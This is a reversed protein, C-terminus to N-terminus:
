IGGRVPENGIKQQRPRYTPPKTIIKKFTRVSNVNRNKLSARCLSGDPSPSGDYWWTPPRGTLLNELFYNTGAADRIEDYKVWFQGPKEQAMVTGACIENIPHGWNTRIRRGVIHSLRIDSDSGLQFQKRINNLLENVKPAPKAPLRLQMENKFKAAVNEDTLGQWPLLDDTHVVLDTGELGMFRIVYNKTRSKERGVIKFPGMRTSDLKTDKVPKRISVWEGEMYDKLNKKRADQEIMKKQHIAINERGQKDQQEIKREKDESNSPSYEVDSNDTESEDISEVKEEHKDKKESDDNDMINSDHNDIIKDDHNNNINDHINDNDKNDNHINDDNDNDDVKEKVQEKEGKESNNTELLRQIPLVPERGTNAKYPTMGHSSARAGNLAFQVGSLKEDWNDKDANVYNRMTEEVTRNAREVLGNTKHQYPLAYNMAIGNRECGDKFVGKFANDATVVEPAGWRHLIRKEFKNWATSMSKNRTPILEIWKTYRDIVNLVYRNKRATKNWPGIFDIHIDQFPRGVRLPVLEANRARGATKNLHCPCKLVYKEIESRANEWFYRDLIRATTRAVGTHGAMVDDHMYNLIRQRLPGPPVYPRAYRDLESKYYLGEGILLYNKRITEFRGIEKESLSHTDGGLFNILKKTPPHKRQAAWLNPAALELANENLEELPGLVPMIKIQEPTALQFKEHLEDSSRNEGSLDSPDFKKKSHEQQSDEVKKYAPGVNPNIFRTDRSLADATPIKEGPRHVLKGGSSAIIGLYRKVDDPIERTTNWYSLARCDTVLLVQNFELYHRFHHLARVLALVELYYSPKKRQADLLIKSFYHVPHEFGNHEQALVAGTAYGSADTVLVFPKSFDPLRVIPYITLAKKLSEFATNQVTGQIHIEYGGDPDKKLLDTLPSAVSAYNKVFRRYWGTMGLFRQLSKLDKPPEFDAIAQVKKPDVTIRGEEIM